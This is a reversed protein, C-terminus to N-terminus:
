LYGLADLEEEYGEPQEATMPPGTELAMSRHRGIQDEFRQLRAQWEESAELVAQEVPHQQMPDQTLDYAARRVPEHYSGFRIISGEKEIMSVSWIDNEPGPSDLESIISRNPEAILRADADLLAQAMMGSEPQGGALAVTTPYVDFLGTVEPVRVSRRQNPVQILLPVQLEEIHLSNGHFFMGHEGFAEGHDSIFVIVTNDRQDIRELTELISALANDARRIQAEYLMRLYRNAEPSLNPLEGRADGIPADAEYANNWAQIREFDKESIGDVVDHHFADHAALFDAPYPRYPGHPDIQHVFLFFPDSGHEGIWHNVERAQDLARLSTTLEFDDFGRDYDFEERILPNTQFCATHYGLAEMSEAWSTLQPQLRRPSIEFAEKALWPTSASQHIRPTLGTFLSAVSPKTWCSQAYCRDFVFSRRALADVTPACNSRGGYCPLSDARLSDPMYVLFNPPGDSRPQSQCGGTAALATSAAAAALFQRRHIRATLPKM